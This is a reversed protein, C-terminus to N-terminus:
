TSTVFHSMVPGDKAAWIEPATHTAVFGRESTEPQVRTDISIRVTGPMSNPVSRHVTYAAFTVLDGVKFATTAWPESISEAPIGRQPLHEALLNKLVPDHGHERIGLKQSGVAIEVGGMELPMDVLPTWITVFDTNPGIMGECGDQHPPNIYECDKVTFYRPQCQKFVYAPEGLIIEYLAMMEPCRWFTAYPTAAHLANDDVQTTPMGTWQGDEAIYGQEQLNAILAASVPAVADLPVVGRLFAYGNQHFAERFKDPEGILHSTEELGLSNIKMNGEGANEGAGLVLSVRKYCLYCQGRVSDREVAWRGFRARGHRDVGRWSQFLKQPSGIPMLIAFYDGNSVMESNARCRPRPAAVSCQLMRLFM